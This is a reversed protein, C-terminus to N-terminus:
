IHLAFMGMGLTLPIGLGLVAGLATGSFASAKATVPPIAKPQSTPAAAPPLEQPAASDGILLSPDPPQLPILTM